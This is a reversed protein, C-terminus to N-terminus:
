FVCVCVTPTQCLHPLLLFLILSKSQNILKHLQRSASFSTTHTHKLKNSNPKLLLCPLCQANIKSSKTQSLDSVLNFTHAQLICYLLVSCCMKTTTTTTATNSLSPDTSSRLSGKPNMEKPNWHCWLNNQSTHMHTHKLSVQDTLKATVAQASHLAPISTSWNWWWWWFLRRMLASASTKKMKIARTNQRKFFIVSSENVLVCQASKQTVLVTSFFDNERNGAQRVTNNKALEAASSWDIRVTYFSQM